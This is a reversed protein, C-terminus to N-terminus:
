NTALPHLAAAVLQYQTTQLTCCTTHLAYYLEQCETTRYYINRAGLLYSTSPLLWYSATLERM